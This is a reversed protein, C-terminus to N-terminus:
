ARADEKPLDLKRQGGYSTYAVGVAQYDPGRRREAELVAAEADAISGIGATAKALAKLPEIDFRAVLQGRQAVWPLANFLEFLTQRGGYSDSVIDWGLRILRARDRASATPGALMEELVPGIVDNDFAGESPINILAQSAIEHLHGIIRRYHEVSYARGATVIEPDPMLMGSASVSARAESAYIFSRLTVLYRVAEGLAEQSQPQGERGSLEPILAFLGALVEAKAVLRGLISWHAWESIRPFVRACFSVDGIESFVREWPVLVNDFVIMSDNEDGYVSVPHDFSSGTGLPERAIVRLGPTAIPLSFYLVHEDRLGPRPFAGVLIEDAFPAFTAITKVGRVVVGDENTTVVRPVVTEEVPTSPPAQVDVFAHALALDNDRAYEFYDVINQEFRADGRSFEDKIDLMGLHFLPVYDPARGFLGGTQRAMTQTVGRRWALEDPTRPQLWNGSSREGRDDEYSLADRYEDTQALDYIRAFTRTVEAFGPETTVDDVRRGDVYVERGDRLAALYDEGTRLAV